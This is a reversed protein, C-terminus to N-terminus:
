VGKSTWLQDLELIHLPHISERIDPIPFGAGRSISGTRRMEM